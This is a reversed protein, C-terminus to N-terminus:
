KRLLTKLFSYILKYQLENEVLILRQEKLKRVLNFINLVKQKQKLMQYVNYFSLYTGSRGVGASCHVVVPYGPYKTLFSETEEIMNLFTDSVKTIDPVGHDPWSTFNMQTIDRSDDDKELKFRRTVLHEKKNEEITTLNYGNVNASKNYAPWYQACKVRDKELTQCLMVILITNKEYIM